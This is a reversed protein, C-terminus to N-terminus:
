LCTAGRAANCGTAPEKVLAEIRKRAGAQSLAELPTRAQMQV